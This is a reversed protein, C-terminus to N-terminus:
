HKTSTSKLLGDLRALNLHWCPLWTQFIEKRRKNEKSATVTRSKASKGHSKKQKDAALFETATLWQDPTKDVNSYRNNWEQMRLAMTVKEPDLAHRMLEFVDSISVLLRSFWRLDHVFYSQAAGEILGVDQFLDDGYATLGYQEALLYAEVAHWPREDKIISCNEPHREMLVSQIEANFFPYHLRLFLTSQPRKQLADEELMRRIVRSSMAWWFRDDPRGRNANFEMQLDSIFRKEEIEAPSNLVSEFNSLAQESKKESKNKM